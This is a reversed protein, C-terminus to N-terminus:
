AWYVLFDYALDEKQVLWGKCNVQNYNLLLYEQRTGVQVDCLM